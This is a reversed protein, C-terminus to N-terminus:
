RIIDALKGALKSAILDYTKSRYHVDDYFYELNKPIMSELDILHVNEEKAIQRIEDNYQRLGTLATKYSWKKGNGIAERNLMTLAKLEESSESDKYINPQTMLVVETHNEKALRILTKLNREFSDLGPFYSTDIETIVPQYWLSRIAELIGGHERQLRVVDVLKNQM